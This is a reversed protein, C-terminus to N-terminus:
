TTGAALNALKRGKGQEDLRKDGLIADVDGSAKKRLEDYVFAARDAGFCRLAALAAAKKDPGLYSTGKATETM